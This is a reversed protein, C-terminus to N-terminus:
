RVNPQFHWGLSSHHSSPPSHGQLSREGGGKSDTSIFKPVPQRYMTHACGQDMQERETRDILPLRQQYQHCLHYLIQRCQPLAPNLGQMPFIGQLLFLSGVGSDQGIWPTLFLWVHSLSKWKVESQQYQSQAHHKHATDSEWPSKNRISCLQCGECLGVGHAETTLRGPARRREGGLETRRWQLYLFYQTHDGQELAAPFELPSISIWTKKPVYWRQGKLSKLHCTAEM